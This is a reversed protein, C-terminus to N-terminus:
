IRTYYVTKTTVVKLHGKRTLFVTCLGGTSVRAIHGANKDILLRQPIHVSERDGLGLQGLRGFGWVFVSMTKKVANLL